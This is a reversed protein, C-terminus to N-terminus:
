FSGRSPTVEVRKIDQSPYAIDIGYEDKVIVFNGQYYVLKTYSDGPRGEHPFNKITGDKMYIKISPM